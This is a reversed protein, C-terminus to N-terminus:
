CLSKSIPIEPISVREFLSLRLNQWWPRKTSFIRWLPRPLKEPLWRESILRFGYKEFLPASSRRGFSRSANESTSCDMLIGQLPALPLINRLAIDLQEDNFSTIFSNMVIIPMSGVACWEPWRQDTMVNHTFIRNRMSEMVSIDLTPDPALDSRGNRRAVWGQYIQRRANMVRKPDLDCGALNRVDMGFHEVMHRLFYGDGCGVDLIRGRDVFDSILKEERANVQFGGHVSELYNRNLIHLSYEPVPMAEWERSAQQNPVGASPHSRRWRHYDLALLHWLPQGLHDNHRLPEEFFAVTQKLITM